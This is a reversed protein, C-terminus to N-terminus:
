ITWAFGDACAILSCAVLESRYKSIRARSSSAKTGYDLLGRSVCKAKWNEMTACRRGDRTVSDPGALVEHLTKLFKAGQPSPRRAGSAPMPGPPERRAPFDTLVVYAASIARGNRDVGIEMSRLEFSWTDGEPGDKMRGVAVTARPTGDAKDCRTVPLIVDCSGEIANTGSGRTDDSRPSHHVANVHCNFTNALMDCNSLLVSMDRSDNESKGPTAKRLTDIVIARVPAIDKIATTIAAILRNLDDTGSGLNPMVPVLFFPVRKGEIGHHRRMAILRRKVGKVGESTVYVVAGQQVGRGVYSKGMAVHMLMDMLFFSKLGKPPAPTEGFSPGAPLIGDVLCVPDDDLEIDELWIPAFSGTRSAKAKVKPSPSDASDFVKLLVTPGRKKAISNADEKDSM